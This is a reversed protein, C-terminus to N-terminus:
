ILGYLVINLKENQIIHQTIGRMYTDNVSFKLTWYVVKMMLSYEFSQINAVFCERAYRVILKKKKKCSKRNLKRM